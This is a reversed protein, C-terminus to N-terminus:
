RTAKINKNDKGSSHILLGRFAMTFVMLSVSLVAISTYSFDSLGVKIFAWLPVGLSFLLIPLLEIRGIFKNNNRSMVLPSFQHFNWINPYTILWTKEISNNNKALIRDKLEREYNVAAIFRYFLCSDILMVISVAGEYDLKMNIFPVVLDIQSSSLFIMVTFSSLLLTNFSRGTIKGAEFYTQEL